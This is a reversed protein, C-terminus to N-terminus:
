AEDDSLRATWHLDDSLSRWPKPARPMEGIEENARLYSRSRGRFKLPPLSSHPSSLGSMLRSFGHSRGSLRLRKAASAAASGSACLSHIDESHCRLLDMAEAESMLEDNDDAAIYAMGSHKLAAEYYRSDSGSSTASTVM